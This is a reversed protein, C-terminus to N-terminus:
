TNFVVIRKEAPILDLIEALDPADKEGLFEKQLGDRFAFEHTYVPRDLVAEIAKHFEKFPMCLRDQFLQLKVKEYDSLEIWAQSDHFAIAEDKTFQKM